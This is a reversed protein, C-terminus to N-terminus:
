YDYYDDAEDVQISNPKMKEDLINFKTYVGKIISNNFRNKSIQIAERLTKEDSIMKVAFHVSKSDKLYDRNIDDSIFVQFPKAILNQTDAMYNKVSECADMIKKYNSINFSGPGPLLKLISPDPIGIATIDYECNVLKLESKAAIAAFDFDGKLQLDTIKLSVRLGAGWRTGYIKGGIPVQVIKESYLMAEYTLLTANFSSDFSGFGIGLNLGVQMDFTKQFVNAMEFKNRGPDLEVPKIDDANKESAFAMFGGKETLQIDIPYWEYNAM